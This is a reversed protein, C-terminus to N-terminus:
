SGTEHAIGKFALHQGGGWRWKRQNSKLHRKTNPKPLKVIFYRPISEKVNKSSFTQQAKYIELKSAKMLKTFNKALMKDIINKCTYEVKKRKRESIRIICIVSRKVNTQIDRVGKEMNKIKKIKPCYQILKRRILIRNKSYVSDVTLFLYSM